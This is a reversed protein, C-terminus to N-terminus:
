PTIRHLPFVTKRVVGVTQEVQRRLGENGSEHAPTRRDRLGRNVSKHAIDDPENGCLISWALAWGRATRDPHFGGGGVVLLPIGRRLLGPLTDAIANNTMGLRALPDGALVDMGISLIIIDPQYADLLPPALSTYAFAFAHDDCGAPLPVNVNYGFGRGKGIENAADGDPFLPKGKEHFWVTLVHPDAYFAAQTGNGHRAGLDLCAIRKGQRKLLECGIVVDNIYCFGGAAARMAHHYGGSPNFAFDAGGYLLLEIGAITGGVALEAYTYLDSFVPADPTGIGFRLDDALFDAGRRATCRMSITPRM